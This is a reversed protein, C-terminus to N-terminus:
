RFIQSNGDKGDRQKRYLNLWMYHLIIGSAMEQQAVKNGDKFVHHLNLM